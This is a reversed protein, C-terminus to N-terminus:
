PEVGVGLTLLAGIPPEAFVTEASAAREVVYDHRRVPALADAGLMLHVPGSPNWGFRVGLGGAAWLRAGPGLPTADLVVVHLAGVLLSACVSASARTAHLLAFCPTLGGLTAGFEYSGGAASVRQGPLFTMAGSVALRKVVPVRGLISAGFAARPLVGFAAVGAVVVTAHERDDPVL